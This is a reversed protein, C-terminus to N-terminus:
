KGYIMEDFEEQNEREIKECWLVLAMSCIFFINAGAIPYPDIVKCVVLANIILMVLTVLKKM